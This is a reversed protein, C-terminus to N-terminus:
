RVERPSSRRRRSMGSSTGRRTRATARRPQPSSPVCRHRGDRSRASAANESGGRLAATSHHRVCQERLAAPPNRLERASKSIGDPSPTTTRRHPDPVWLRLFPDAEWGRHERRGRPHDHGSGPQGGDQFGREERVGLGVLLPQGKRGQVTSRRHASRPWNPGVTCAEVPAARSASIMESRSPCPLNKARGAARPPGTRRWPGRPAASAGAPSNRGPPRRERDANGARHRGLLVVRWTNAM